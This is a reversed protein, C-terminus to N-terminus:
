IGKLRLALYILVLIDIIHIMKYKKDKEQYFFVWNIIRISEKKIFKWSSNLFKEAKLEVPDPENKKLKKKTM